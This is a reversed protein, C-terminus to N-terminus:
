GLILIMWGAGPRLTSTYLLGEPAFTQNGLGYRSRPSRADRNRIPIRQEAGGGFVRENQLGRINGHDKGVAIIGSMSRLSEKKRRM